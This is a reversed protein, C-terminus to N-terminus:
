VHVSCQGAPLGETGHQTLGVTFNTPKDAFSCVGYLTPDEVMQTTRVPLPQLAVATPSLNVPSIGDELLIPSDPSHTLVAPPHLGFIIISTKSGPSTWAHAAQYAYLM